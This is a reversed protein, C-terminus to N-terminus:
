YSFYVTKNGCDVATLDFGLDRGFREYDFYTELTERGLESIDGLLDVYEYGLDEDSDSDASLFYRDEIDQADATDDIQEWYALVYDSAADIEEARETYREIKDDINESVYDPIDFSKPDYEIADRLAELLKLAEWTEKTDPCSRKVGSRAKFILEDYLLEVGFTGWPEEFAEFYRQTDRQEAEKIKGLIFQVNWEQRAKNFTDFQKAVQVLM